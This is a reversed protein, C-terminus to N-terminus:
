IYEAPAILVTPHNRQRPGYSRSQERIRGPQWQADGERALGSRCSLTKM